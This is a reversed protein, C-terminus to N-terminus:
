VSDILAELPTVEISGPLVYRHRTTKLPFLDDSRGMAIVKQKTLEVDPRWSELIISGDGLYDVCYCPIRQCGLEMSALLRHHGDLVVLTLADVLLPPHFRGTQKMMAVMRRVQADDVEEHTLLTKPDILRLEPINQGEANL